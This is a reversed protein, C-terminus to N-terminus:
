RMERWIGLAVRNQHAVIERLPLREAAPMGPQCMVEQFTFSTPVHPQVLELFQLKAQM